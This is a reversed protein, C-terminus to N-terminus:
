LHAFFTKGNQQDLLVRRERQRNGVAGVNEVVALDDIGALGGIEGPVGLQHILERASPASIRRCRRQRVSKGVPFRTSAGPSEPRAKGYSRSIISPIIRLDASQAAPACACAAITTVPSNTEFGARM